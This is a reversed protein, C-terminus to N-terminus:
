EEAPYQKLTARRIANVHQEASEKKSMTVRRQAEVLWIQETLKNGCGTEYTIVPFLLTM